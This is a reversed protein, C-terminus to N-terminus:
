LKKLICFHGANKVPLIFEYKGRNAELFEDVATKAGTSFYDYDDVIMCGHKELVNHLFHLAIVIPKYLDFDVYAFCVKQPLPSSHISNEIFGPVIKVREIPFEIDRLREKVMDVKYAMTGKYAEMAGLHFIDDKLIDKETPAPLGEFSDFLWINKDSQRIEHALLASTAGQAVGFECLDGEIELSKQLYNLLYIATGININLNSMLTIRKPDDLPLEIFLFRKYLGVIEQTLKMNISSLNHFDIYRNHSRVIQYGLKKFFVKILRKIITCM